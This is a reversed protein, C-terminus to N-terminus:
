RNFDIISKQADSIADNISFALDSDLLEDGKCISWEYGGRYYDSSSEIYIKYGEFDEEITGILQEAIRYDKM